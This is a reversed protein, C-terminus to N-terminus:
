YGDPVEQLQATGALKSGPGWAAYFLCGGVGTLFALYFMWTPGLTEWVLAGMLAAPFVSVNRLLYYLGVARGRAAEDALDVILAKRAPEGVEWLGAVIFALVAGAPGTVSALVLPFLAFFAFTALVFPKRNLRDTHGLLPLYVLLNTVRQLTMLWGFQMASLGLYTLCYIVVFVKPIGEAWRALIDAVLLRKLRGDFTRWVGTLRVSEYRGPAAERYYRYLLLAAGFCCAITVALGIRVGAVIGFAAILLGGLPPAVITPIRRVISQWAFGAARRQPPLNDGVMAFLSPLTLTDWAM